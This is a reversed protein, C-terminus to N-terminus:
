CKVLVGNEYFDANCGGCYNSVCTANPHSPCRAFRCPDILCYAVKLGKPCQRCRCTPCNNKDLEQGYQCKILGACPLRPCVPEPAPKFGGTPHQCRYGCGQRCCKQTLPCDSDKRCEDFKYCPFKSPVFEPCFGEKVISLEPKRPYKCVKGCGNSCCIKSDGCQRDSLCNFRSRDFRCITALGSSKPCRPNDQSRACVFFLAFILYKM